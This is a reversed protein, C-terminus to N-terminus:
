NKVLVHSKHKSLVHKVSAHSYIMIFDKNESVNLGLSENLFSFFSDTTLIIVFHLEAMLQRGYCAYLRRADALQKAVM